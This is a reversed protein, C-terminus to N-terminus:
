EAKLLGMSRLDRVSKEVVQQNAQAKPPRPVGVAIGTASLIGKMMAIETTSVRIAKNLRSQIGEAEHLDGKWYAQFLAIFLEPFLNATAVIASKAGLVLSSLILMDAGSILDYPKRAELKGIILGLDGSSDKEGVVNPCRDAVAASVRPSISNGTRQPINYLYVPFQDPVSAAVRCFHDILADESHGFFFPCVISIADAGRTVAHKAMQITDRTTVAGVQVVVPIEGHVQRIVAEALQCREEMSLAPGEGTTGAVMLGHIGARILRGVLENLADFNIQGDEHFPTVLPVSVGKLIPVAGRNQQMQGAM